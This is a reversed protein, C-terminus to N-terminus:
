KGKASNPLFDTKSLKSFINCKKFTTKIIYYLESHCKTFYLLETIFRLFCSMM